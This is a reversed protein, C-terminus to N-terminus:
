AKSVDRGSVKFFHMRQSLEDAKIKLEKARRSMEDASSANKQTEGNLLQISNNIQIAGENQEKSNAHIEQILNSTAQMLPISSKLLEIAVESQESGSKSVEEIENAAVKSREALKRVEKAVVSFGRGHEGARAAEVSANLALINTQEAIDNIVKIKEAIDLMSSLAVMASNNGKEVASNAEMAIKETKQSNETSQDINAVMEEMSSSIEELSSAQNTASNSINNVSKNLGGGIDNLDDASDDIKNVVEGFVAIIKVISRQIDGIEDDKTIRSKGSEISLDGSAIVELDGCTKKLPYKVIRSTIFVFVFTIGVTVVFALPYPYVDAFNEGFRTNIVVLMINIGWLTGIQFFISKKFVTKLIFVLAITGGILTIIAKLIIPNM